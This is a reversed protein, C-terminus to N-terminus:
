KNYDNYKQGKLGYKRIDNINAGGFVLAFEKYKHVPLFHSESESM